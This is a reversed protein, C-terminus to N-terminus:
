WGGRYPTDPRRTLYTRTLADTLEARLGAADPDQYLNRREHPDSDYAYLEGHGDDANGYAILKHERTRLCRISSTPGPQDHEWEALIYPREEHPMPELDRSVLPRTGAPADDIGALELLTATMDIGSALSDVARGTTGAEPSAPAALFPVHLLDDQMFPGKYLLGRQGLFEGHDSSFVVTTDEALGMRRVGELLRGVCHDVHAIMAHYARIIPLLQDPDRTSASLGDFAQRHHPPLTDLMAPDFEPMEVPAEAFDSAFPEVPNFAHHPDFVGMYLFFSRDPDRGHELWDLSRDVCWSSLHLPEPLQSPYAKGHGQTIMENVYSVFEQPHRDRLWHFYDDEFLQQDGEAIEWVDFGHLPPKATRRVIPDLHHKGFAATQVGHRAFRDAVTPVHEPLSCGNRWLGHETVHKGTFLCARSPSCVPSTTFYRDFRLGREALADLHPTKAVDCGTCGLSDYRQQDTLILIVNRQEPM